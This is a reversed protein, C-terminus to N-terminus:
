ENHKIGTPCGQQGGGEVKSLEARSLKAICKPQQHEQLANYMLEVGQVGGSGGGGVLPLEGQDVAQPAEQQGKAQQEGAQMYQM